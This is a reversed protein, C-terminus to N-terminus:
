EGGGRVGDGGGGVKIGQEQAVGLGRRQEAEAERMARLMAEHAALGKEGM